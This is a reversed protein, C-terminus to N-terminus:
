KQFIHLERGIKHREEVDVLSVLAMLKESGVSEEAFFERQFPQVRKFGVALAKEELRMIVPQGSRTKVYPSVVVL